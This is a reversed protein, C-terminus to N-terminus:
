RAAFLAILNGVPDAITFQRTGWPSDWLQELPDVGYALCRAHVEDVGTLSGCNLYSVASGAEFGRKHLEAYLAKSADNAKEVSPPHSFMVSATDRRLQCWTYENTEPFRKNLEFGLVKEYFEVIPPLDRAWFHLEIM